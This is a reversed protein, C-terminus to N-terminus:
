SGVYDLLVQACYKLEGTETDRCKDLDIGTFPDDLSFVFGIGAIGNGKHSEYYKLAQEFTEWTTPDNVKANGGTKPNIPIKAPKANQDEVRWVVWQPKAKLEGPIDDLKNVENSIITNDYTSL